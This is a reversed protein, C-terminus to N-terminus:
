ELHKNFYSLHKEVSMETATFNNYVPVAKRLCCFTSGPHKFADQVLAVFASARIIKLIKKEM